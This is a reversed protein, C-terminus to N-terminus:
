HCAQNGSDTFTKDAEPVFEWDFSDVHLTLKLVGDAPNTDGDMFAELGPTTTTRTQITLNKGGTGVVIQRMGQAADVANADRNLPAFRQYNHDHGTVVLDAQYDYLVQWFLMSNGESSGGEYSDHPGASLTAHHWYAVTCPRPNTALDAALWDRQTLCDTHSCNSNLAYVRWTGADYAYYGEAKHGAAVGFYNFYGAAGPTNYEHNGPVPKTRSKHRGWSPAYCDAFEADTGSNYVADGATFVTGSIADLLDATAEDGTGGCSAIDGAGVLVPDL